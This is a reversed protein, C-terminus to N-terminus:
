GSVEEWASPLLVHGAGPGLGRLFVYLFGGYTEEWSRASDLGLMRALAVAYLRAQLAYHARVHAAVAEPSYDRLLDTKWDVLYLRGELRLVADFFGTVWGDGTPPHVLVPALRGALAEDYPIRFELERAIRECRALEPSAVGPLGLPTRYAAYVMGGVRRWLPEPLGQRQLSARVWDEKGPSDLWEDPSGFALLEAPEVTECLEHVCLGTAVGPPPESPPVEPLTDAVPEDAREERLELHRKLGSYSFVPLGARWSPGDDRVIAEEVLALVEAGPARVPAGDPSPAHVASADCARCGVTEIRFGFLAAVRPDTSVEQALSHVRPLITRVAGPFASGSAGVVGTAPDPEPEAVVQLFCLAKARTMAVYMLREADGLEEGALVAREPDTAEMRGVHLVRRGESPSHYEHVGSSPNRTLGGFLFVVPAELGKANHMTLIRVANEDPDTVEMLLGEAGSEPRQGTVRDRVLRVLGEADMPRAALEHRLIEFIRELNIADRRTAACSLLRPRVGSEQLMAQLLRDLDGSAALATWGELVSVALHGRELGGARALAVPDIGFFPTVFARNRLGGIRPRLVAELVDLLARAEPGDFLTQRRYFAFPIGAERLVGAVTRGEAHKQVLVFVDRYDLARAEGGPGILRTGRAILGAIEGAVQRALEFRWNERPVHPCYRQGLVVMPEVAPELRLGPRGCAVPHDYRVGQATLVGDPGAGGFFHNIADVMPASCRFNRELRVLVGGSALLHSRAELYTVIDAGRFRYIAQKPDGVVVLGGDDRDLFIRRLIGWQLGDTDQFEDVIGLRFRERLRRVLVPGTGPDELASALRRIMDFYTLVHRRRKIEELAGRVAPLLAITALHRQDKLHGGDLVHVFELWTELAEREREDGLRDLTKECYRIFPNLRTKPELALVTLCDQWRSAHELIRYVLEVYPKKREGGPAASALVEEFARRGQPSRLAAPVPGGLRALRAEFRLPAATEVAARLAERLVQLGSRALWNEILGHAVPDRYWEGRVLERLVGPFLDDLSALEQEVPYPTHISCWSLVRQAFGHITTITAGDFGALARRVQPESGGETALCTRVRDRLEAAAKDTFTVLLLEQIPVGAQVRNLVLREITFTKGTGASAEILARVPGPGGFVRKLIEDM